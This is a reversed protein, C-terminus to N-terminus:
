QKLDDVCCIHEFPYKETIISNNLSYFMYYIQVDHEIKQGRMRNLLSLCLNERDGKTVTITTGQSDTFSDPNFRLVFKPKGILLPDSFLEEFRKDEEYSCSHQNEDFEFLIWRDELDFIIDPRRLSKGGLSRLSRDRALPKFDSPLRKLLFDAFEHERRSSHGTVEHFCGKCLGMEKVTFSDGSCKDCKQRSRKAGTERKEFQHGCKTCECVQVQINFFHQNKCRDCDTHGIDHIKRLHRNFHTSSRTFYGCFECKRVPYSLHDINHVESKHRKLHTNATEGRFQANCIECTSVANKKQNEKQEEEEKLKEQCVICYLRFGLWGKTSLEFQTKTKDILADKIEGCMVCERGKHEQLEKGAKLLRRQKLIMANCDNCFSFFSGDSRRHFQSVKPDGCPKQKRCHVCIKQFITGDFSKQKAAETEKKYTCNRCKTPRQFRGNKRYFPKGALNTCGPENCILSQESDGGGEAGESSINQSIEGFSRKGLESLEMLLLPTILINM